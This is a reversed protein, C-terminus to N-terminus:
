PELSLHQTATHAIDKERYWFEPTDNSMYTEAQNDYLPSTSDGSAGGPFAMWMHFDGPVAEIIVRFSSGSGYNFDQGQVGWNAVDVTFNDGHRPFGGPYDPDSDTPIDYSDVGLLNSLTLTHISGWRWQSPDSTDLGDSSSLWAVADDLAALIIDERTETTNVTDLDDFLVSDGIGADYTAADEPRNLILLMGRTLFQDSNPISDYGMASLEDGLFRDTFFSLWVNFLATAAADPGTQGTESAPARGAAARFGRQQWGSLLASLESYQTKGEIAQLIHPVFREGLPSRVDSQFREVDKPTIDGGNDIADEIMQGIRDGRFGIAFVPSIYVPDNLPDNDLTQGLLDQNATALWGRGPNVVRPNDEAPLYGTWEHAGTGPLPAMVPDTYPDGDDDDRLPYLSTADWGIDGDSTAFVLNTPPVGAYNARADLIDQLNEARSLELFQDAEPTPEFGTWRWSLATQTGADYSDPIITANRHPVVLVTRTQEDVSNAGTRVQIVETREVLDVYEAPNGGPGDADWLVQDVGGTGTGVSYDEVYNDTVDPIVNTIGWAVRGNHGIIVNPVGPLQVGIIDVSGGARVTNMHMQYWISPASLGLHPDNALLPYGSATHTGSIVWNNSGADPAWPSNLEHRLTRNTLRTVAMAQKATIAMSTTTNALPCASYDDRVADPDTITDDVAPQSRFIVDCYMLERDTGQFATQAAQVQTFVQSKLDGFFSQDFALFRAIALSDVPTWEPFDAVPYQLLSYELPPLIAGSRIEDIKANVGKSFQELARRTDSDAALNDFNQQAVRRLGLVRLMYDDDALEPQAVGALEATTGSAFRRMLDMQLLRDTAQMYGVAVLLDDENEAYIHVRGWEDRVIDVSGTLDPLNLTETVPVDDISDPGSKPKKCATLACVLVLVVLQLRWM